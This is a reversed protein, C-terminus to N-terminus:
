SACHKCFERIMSRTAARQSFLVRISRLVFALVLFVSRLSIEILLLRRSTEVNLCVHSQTAVFADGVGFLRLKM